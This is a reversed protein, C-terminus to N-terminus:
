KLQMNMKNIIAVKWNAELDLARSTERLLGSQAVKPKMTHQSWWRHYFFGGKTGGPPFVSVRWSGHGRWREQQIVSDQLMLPRFNNHSYVERAHLSNQLPDILVWLVASTNSKMAYSRCQDKLVNQLVTWQPFNAMDQFFDALREMRPLLVTKALLQLLNCHPSPDLSCSFPVKALFFLETELLARYDESCVLLWLYHPRISHASSYFGANEGRGNVWQTDLANVDRHRM